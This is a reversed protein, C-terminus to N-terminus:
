RLTFMSEKCAMGAASSLVGSWLWMSARASGFARLSAYLTWLYCAAMMSETRQTVYDVAESNLPHVTWLLSVACALAVSPTADPGEVESPVPGEAESPVPGEVESPVPRRVGPLALTRRVLGFVLLACVLHVVLNVLHYGTVDLRSVAFNVAFSLNVLPRGAM